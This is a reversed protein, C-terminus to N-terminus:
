NRDESSALFAGRDKQPMLKLTKAISHKIFISLTLVFEQTRCQQILLVNEERPTTNMFTDMELLVTDSQIKM